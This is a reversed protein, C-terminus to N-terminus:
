GHIYRWIRSLLSRSQRKEQLPQAAAEGVKLRGTRFAEVMEASSARRVRDPIDTRWVWDPHDSDDLQVWGGTAPVDSDARQPTWTRTPPPDYPSPPWLNIRAAVPEPEPPTDHEHQERQHRGCVILDCCGRIYTPQGANRCGCSLLPHKLASAKRRLWSEYVPDSVTM